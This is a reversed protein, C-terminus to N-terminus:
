VAFKINRVSELAGRFHAITPTSELRPWGLERQDREGVVQDMFSTALVYKGCVLAGITALISQAEWGDPEHGEATMADLLKELASETFERINM